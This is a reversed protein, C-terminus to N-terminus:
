SLKWDLYRELERSSASYYGGSKYHRLFRLWRMYDGDSLASAVEDRSAGLVYIGSYVGTGAPADATRVADRVISQVAVKDAYTDAIGQSRGYGWWSADPVKSRRRLGDEHGILYDYLGPDTDRIEGIGILRGGRDYPYIMRQRECTAGKVVDIVYRYGCGAGVLYTSNALTAYGNRVRVRGPACSLVSGVVGRDADSLVPYGHSWADRQRVSAEPVLRGGSLSWVSVEESPEAGVRILCTYATANEFVQLHGLDCIGSLVGREELDHRMPGGASSTMWSSPMIYTMNSGRRRSLMRQGVDAFAYYLDTMGSVYPSDPIDPLNHIRVYPPNGIVRDMAGAYRRWESMADGCVVDWSGSPVALGYESAAASMSERCRAAEAPDLEIGHVHAVLDSASAGSSAALRVAEDLIAGDGCAPDIVHLSPTGDYGALGCLVEAMWRPTYFSGTGKDGTGGM